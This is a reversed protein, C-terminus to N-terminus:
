TKDELMRQLTTQLPTLTVDLAADDNNAVEEDQTIVDIVTPTFGGGQIRSKIGAGLKALWIPVSGIEIKLGRLEAVRRILEHYVIPEPGVLEYISKGSGSRGCTNLIAQCLNDIDLPRMIYRGGGLLKVRPQSATGVVGSTGATGPGLLMPTRIVTSALGSDTVLQEAMGKSKFYPNSSNPDAGIVSIFVIHEAGASQAARVVAATADVNATQYDSGPGEILIGALHVVSDVGAFQKGLKDSDFYSIEMPHIRPSKPLHALAQASRAGAIAEIEDNGQILHLLAKGVSSNAGTIALKM